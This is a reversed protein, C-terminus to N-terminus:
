WKRYKKHLEVLVKSQRIRHLYIQTSKINSHGILAFIEDVSAGREELDAVYSHRIAHPHFDLLGIRHFPEEIKRRITNYAMPGEGFRGPWLYDTIHYDDVYNELLRATERSIYTERKILGKAIFNLRQGHIEGLRLKTLEGARMGTDFAIRIMLEATQDGARAAAMIQKRTYFVQKNTPEKMRKVLSLKIPIILGMERHYGVICRVNSISRNLSVPGAGHEAREKLWSSLLANTLNRLDKIGTDYYFRNFTWRKEMITVPSMGRTSSCWDLYEELQELYNNRKKM